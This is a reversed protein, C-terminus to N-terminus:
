SVLQTEKLERSTTAQWPASLPQKKRLERNNKVDAVRPQWKGFLPIREQRPNQKSRKSCSEPRFLFFNRGGLLRPVGAAATAVGIAWTSAGRRQPGGPM